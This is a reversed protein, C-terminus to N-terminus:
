GERELRSLAARGPREETKTGQYDVTMVGIFVGRFILGFWGTIRQVNVQTSWNQGDPKWFCRQIELRLASRPAGWRFQVM